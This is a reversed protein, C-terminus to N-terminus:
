TERKAIAILLSLAVDTFGEYCTQLDVHLNIHPAPGM